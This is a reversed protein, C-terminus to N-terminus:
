NQIDHTLGRETLTFQEQVKGLRGGMNKFQPDRGGAVPDCALLVIRNTALSHVYIKLSDWKWDPKHINDGIKADPYMRQFVEGLSERKIKGQQYYQDLSPILYNPVRSTILGRRITTHIADMTQVQWHSQSYMNNWYTLLGTGIMMSFIMVLQRTRIPIPKRLVYVLLAILYTGTVIGAAILPLWLEATREPLFFAITVAVVGVLIWLIIVTAEEKIEITNTENEM